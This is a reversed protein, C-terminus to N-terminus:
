LASCGRDVTEVATSLEDVDIVERDILLGVLGRVLFRLESVSKSLEPRREAGTRMEGDAAAFGSGAIGLPWQRSGRPDGGFPYLEGFFDCPDVRLVGLIMLVQELRLAKQKTLLQSIYSRGWGLLDQVELQTFGRERIKNRLLTLVRDVDGVVAPMTTKNM